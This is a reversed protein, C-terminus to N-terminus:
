FWDFSGLLYKNNDYKSESDWWKLTWLTSIQNYQSIKLLLHHEKPPTEDMSATSAQCASIAQM